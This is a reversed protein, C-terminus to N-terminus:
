SFENIILLRYKYSEVSYNYVADWNSGNLLDVTQVMNLTKRGLYKERIECFIPCIAIFHFCDEKQHMNCISCYQNDNSSYPSGNLRITESRLKFLVSIKKYSFEDKFYNLESLNYNLSSYLIRSNSNRAQQMFKNRQLQDLKQMISSLDDRLIGMENTNIVLSHECLQGLRTWEKALFHKHRMEYLLVQKSLRSEEGELTKLIYDAQLKLTYNHLLSLGTELYIAYNPVNFPLMFMKKIFNRLSRELNEHAYCGWVQAAYCLSSRVVSKFVQYKTSLPVNENSMVNKWSANVSRQVSNCKEQFHLKFDMNSTIIVGLYRYHKVIEVEEGNYFWKEDSAYRGHGNRFIMIKSKKTNIHLDWKQCYDYLRKIMFRLSEPSEAFIVVDDAYLLAKVIIEAMCIGGPLIDVIDNIFLSFILASLICGQKVGSNTRFWDSLKQGDWVTSETGTYLSIIINLLKTSIGLCSLKYFLANRNVSDFAARFDIFFAYLKKKRDLFSKAITALTFIQDCTSYQKRFGAQFDSILGNLNVWNQLRNLLIGCFIKAVANMFSIGRYNEVLNVPGKKYLPFIISKKFSSPTEGTEMIKNYSGLLIQLFEDSAYKFFEYSIRDDGPAKNEKSHKLVLKLEVMSIRADLLENEILPRAYLFNSYSNKEELLKQYYCALDGASIEVGYKFKTGNIQKLISWFSKTDKAYSLKLARNREYTSRKEVCLSKYKQNSELYCRKIEFDNSNRYLQLLNFSINRSRLCEKDFWKQKPRFNTQPFSPASANICNLLIDLTESPDQSLVIDNLKLNLKQKYIGEYGTKWRLKPLLTMERIQDPNGNLSLSTVIPLHDSYVQTCVEFDKVHSFWSSSIACLDIVSKGQNGVFTFEGQQDNKSCGNLIFLDYTQFLDILLRGNTNVVLDKSERMMLFNNKLNASTRTQCKGVRANFDGIVMINENVLESLVTGFIEFNENWCNCNLYTPVIYFNEHDFRCKIVIYGNIDFFSVNEMKTKYGFLCGGSARGRSSTRRAPIWRLRYDRFSSEFDNSKDEELHTEFLFFVDFNNIYNFFDVFDIKNYLGNINYSM